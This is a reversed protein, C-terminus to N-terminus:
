KITMEFVCIEALRARHGDERTGGDLYKHVRMREPPLFTRRTGKRDDRNFYYDSLYTTGNLVFPRTIAAGTNIIRPKAGIRTGVVQDQKGPLNSLDFDNDSFVVLEEFGSPTLDFIPSKVVVDRDGDNDIDVTTVLTWFRGKTDALYSQPRVLRWVVADFERSTPYRSEVPVRSERALRERVDENFPDKFNANYTTLMAQCVDRDASKTLKFNYESAQGSLSLGLLAAAVINAVRVGDANKHMDARGQMHWRVNVIVRVTRHAYRM